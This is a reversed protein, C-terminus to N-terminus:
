LTIKLNKMECPRYMTGIPTFNPMFTWEEKGSKVRIPAAILTYSQFKVLNQFIFAAHNECFESLKYATKPHM